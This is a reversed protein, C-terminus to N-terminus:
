AKRAKLTDMSFDCGIRIPRSKYTVQDKEKAAKLM